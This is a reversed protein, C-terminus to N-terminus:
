SCPGLISTLDFHAGGEGHAVGLGLVLDLDIHLVVLLHQGQVELGVRALHQDAPVGSGGLEVGEGGQDLVEVAALAVACPRVGGNVKCHGGLSALVELGAGVDGGGNTDGGLTSGVAGGEDGDRVLESVALGVLTTQLGNGIGLVSLLARSADSSINLSQLTGNLLNQAHDVPHRAVNLRHDVLLGGSGGGHTLEQQVSESQSRLHLRGINLLVQIYKGKSM